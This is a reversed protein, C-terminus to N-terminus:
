NKKVLFNVSAIHAPNLKDIRHNRNRELNIEVSVQHSGEKLSDISITKLLIIRKSISPLVSSIETENTSLFFNSQDLVEKDDIKIKYLGNLIKLQVDEDVDSFSKENSGYDEIWKKFAPEELRVLHTICINLNNKEIIPGNISFFGKGSLYEYNANKFKYAFSDIGTETEFTQGLISILFIPVGLILIPVYSKTNSIINYYLRRYLFSLTIISAVKHIPYFLLSFLKNKRFIGATLFDIIVLVLPFWFILRFFVFAFNSRLTLPTVLDSIIAMLCVYITFSIVSLISVFTFAFILSCFNDLKIISNTNKPDLFLRQFKGKFALKDLNIGFPFASNMGILGIWYGRLILHFVFGTILIFVSIPILISIFAIASTSIKTSFLLHDTFNEILNISALLAVIAGGSILIEAEWSENQLRELWEPTQSKDLDSTEVHKGEENEM